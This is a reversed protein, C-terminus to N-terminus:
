SNTVHNSNCFVLDEKWQLLCGHRVKKVVEGKMHRVKWEESQSLYSFVSLCTGQGSRSRPEPLLHHADM